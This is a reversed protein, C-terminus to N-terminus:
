VAEVRARARVEEPALRAVEDMLAPLFTGPGHVDPREAAIEAAISLVLVGTLAGVLMDGRVVTSTDGRVVTSTDTDAGDVDAKAAAGDLDAIHAAAADLDAIHAAAACYTAVLSGLMCGSGTVRGLVEVGNSVRVCRAGDSVYDTAGSLLTTCHERGALARVFGAPDTFGPGATDVGKARVEEAGPIPKLGSEIGTPTSTQLGAVAALEGANGKLVSIWVGRECDLVCQFGDLLGQTTRKRFATAGVGVPDFVLPTRALNAAPGVVRMAGVVDLSLLWNASKKPATAMIPSAGAALTINASQTTVVTNTIQHVLPNLERVVNMVRVVEDLLDPVHLPKEPNPASMSKKFDKVIAALKAAAKGPEKSAMIDSVVAVGDLARGSDAIAGRLTRALNGAGIGGIAVARIHSGDLLALLAGVARPGLLPNKVNKTMTGYVAGIGVYDAGDARARRVDDASNCSVGVIAGPPLLARADKVQMDDQGVHVGAAGVALAIDVRDNILLPVNHADCIAKTTRAITLFDGTDATKERLQVLTVGSSLAATLTSEFSQGPPLLDRGTVLYVSYDIPSM